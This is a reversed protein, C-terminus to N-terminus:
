FSFLNSNKKLRILKFKRIICTYFTTRHFYHINKHLILEINNFLHMNIIKIIQKFVLM